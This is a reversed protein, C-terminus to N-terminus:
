LLSKVEPLNLFRDVTKNPDYDQTRRTDFMTALGTVNSIFSRLEERQQHAEAWKGDDILAVVAAARGAVEDRLAPPLLGAYFAAAALTQTQARPDTLGNGIALGTLRFLPPVINPPLARRQRLSPPAPPQSSPPTPTTATSATTTTTATSATTTTLYDDQAQLIYHAISPVYKGAYSEGTIFLPRTALEAHARYFGQLATYLHTAMGMEDTPISSNGAGAVSYGTGVPQDVLLLGFLRNWSG